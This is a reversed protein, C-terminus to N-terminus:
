KLASVTYGRINDSRHQFTSFVDQGQVCCQKQCSFEEIYMKRKCSLERQSSELFNNSVAVIWLFYPLYLYVYKFCAYVLSIGRDKTDDIIVSLVLM